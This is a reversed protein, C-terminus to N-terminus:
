AAVAGPMALDRLASQVAALKGALALAHAAAERLADAATPSEPIHSGVQTFAQPLRAAALRLAGMMEYAQMAGPAGAPHMTAYNLYRVLDHLLHAANTTLAPDYPGHLPLERALSQTYM